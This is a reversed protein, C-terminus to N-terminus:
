LCLQDLDEDLLKPSRDFRDLDIMVPDLTKEGRGRGSLNGLRQRTSFASDHHGGDPGLQAISQTAPLRRTVKLGLRSCHRHGFGTALTADDLKTKGTVFIQAVCDIPKGKAREFVTLPGPEVISFLLS